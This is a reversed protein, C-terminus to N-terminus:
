MYEGEQVDLGLQGNHISESPSLRQKACQSPVHHVPHMGLAIRWLDEAHTQCMVISDIINTFRQHLKCPICRPM